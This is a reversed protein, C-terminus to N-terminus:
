DGFTRIVRAPAGVAICNDPIDSTVVSNAGIISNEGITVNPLVVVNTGLFARKKILIRAPSLDIASARNGSGPNGVPHTTDVITCRPAFCVEDEIVVNDCAVIHVHQEISVRDGISLNGGPLGPRNVVELRAGDRIFCYQGIRIQRPNILAIPRRMWSGRGFHGFRWSYALRSRLKGYYIGLRNLM